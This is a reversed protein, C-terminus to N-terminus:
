GADPTQREAPTRYRLKAADDGAVQMGPKDLREEGHFVRGSLILAQAM